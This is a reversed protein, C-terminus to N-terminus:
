ALHANADLKPTDPGEASVTADHDKYKSLLRASLETLAKDVQRSGPNNSTLQMWKDMCVAMGIICDRAKVPAYVIDGKATVHPDGRDQRTGILDLWRATKQMVEYAFQERLSQRLKTVYDEAWEYDLWNRLTTEPVGTRQAAGRVSGCEAYCALAAIKEEDSYDRYAGRSETPTLTPTLASTTM